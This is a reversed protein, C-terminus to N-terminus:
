RGIRDLTRYLLSAPTLFWPNKGNWYFRGRHPIRSFVSPPDEGLVMGALDHGLGIALAVGHGAYGLAYWHGDVKGVHPLLDFPVALKGGWVHTIGYGELEPWYRLMARRLDAASEELDLGPHLNRRGGIVIRDDETRRMYHLLRKRTYAMTGNPFVREATAHGVPETAIMYSGIPVIKRALKESPRTTTYGNTALIVEGARIPGKTTEALNGGGEPRISVVECEEVLVAGAGTVEAALGFALRAPHVGFSDTEVMACDFAEGGVYRGIDEPGAVEWGAGLERNYWDVTARIDELDGKGKGLAVAGSDHILSGTREALERARELARMSTEWMERAVAPGHDRFVSKVGAKVDSSVFGGNMSSAGRALPGADAVVVSRGAAALRLAASLGTFGSGVVLVDAEEPLDSTLGDPRPEQDVWLPFQKM